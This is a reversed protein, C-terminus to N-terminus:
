FTKVALDDVEMDISLDCFHRKGTSVLSEIRYANSCASSHKWGPRSRLYCLIARVLHHVSTGSRGKCLLEMRERIM